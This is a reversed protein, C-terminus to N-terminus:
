HATANPPQTMLYYYFTYTKPAGTAYFALNVFFQQSTLNVGAYFYSAMVADNNANQLTIIYPLSYLNNPQDSRNMFVIPFLAGSSTITANQTIPTTGISVGDWNYTLSGYGAISLNNLLADLNDSTRNLEDMISGIESSQMDLVDQQGSLDVQRNLQSM